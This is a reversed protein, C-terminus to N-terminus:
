GQEGQELALNLDFRANDTMADNANDREAHSEDLKVSFCLECTSEVPIENEVYISKGEAEKLSVYGGTSSGPTCDFETGECTLTGKVSLYKILEGSGTGAGGPGEEPEPHGSEYDQVNSLGVTIGDGAINGVNQLTECDEFTGGNELPGGSVEITEGNYWTGDHEVRLDLTGATATVQKKEEDTFRSWTTAGVAGAAGVTAMSGLVRRRTLTPKDNDDAMPKPRRQGSDAGAAPVTTTRWNVARGAFM